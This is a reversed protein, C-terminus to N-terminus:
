LKYIAANDNKYVTKFLRNLTQLENESPESLFLYSIKRESFGTKLTEPGVSDLEALLNYILQQHPALEYDPGGYASCGSFAAYAATLSRPVLVAEDEPINSKSWEFAEAIGDSIYHLSSREQLRTFQNIYFHINSSCILILLSVLGSYGLTKYVSTKQIKEKMKKWIDEIMLSSLIGLPAGIGIIMQLQFPVPLYVLIFTSLIWVALFFEGSRIMHTHHSVIRFIALILVLGFTMFYNFVSPSPFWDADLHEQPIRTLLWLYYVIAPVCFLFVLMMKKIVLLWSKNIFATLMACVAIIAMAAIMGYIYIFGLAFMGLGAKVTKPQEQFFIQYAFSLVLVFLANALPLYYEGCMSIFMNAEPMADGIFDVNNFVKLSIGMANSLYGFGAGFAYIFLSLYLTFPTKIFQKALSFFCLILVVSSLIRFINFSVSLSSNTIMGTIGIINGIPNIFIHNDGTRGFPDKFLWHGKIAQAPGLALYAYTDEVVQGTIGLFKIGSPTISYGYIVPVSLIIIMFLMM